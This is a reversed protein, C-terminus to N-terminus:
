ATEAFGRRGGRGGQRGREGGQACGARSRDGVAGGTSWPPRASRVGATHLGRDGGGRRLRTERGPGLEVLGAAGGPRRPLARRREAQERTYVNGTGRKAQEGDAVTQRAATLSGQEGAIEGRLRGMRNQLRAAHQRQSKEEAAFRAATRGRDPLSVLGHPNLAAERASKRKERRRWRPPTLARAGSWSLENPRSGRKPRRRRRCSRMRRATSASWRAGSRGTPSGKPGSCAPRALKQRQGVSPPPTRLKGKSGNRAARVVRTPQQARERARRLLSRHMTGHGAGRPARRPRPRDGRHRKLFLWWWMTSVLAM